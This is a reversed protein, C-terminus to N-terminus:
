SLSYCLGPSHGLSDDTDLVDGFYATEIAGELRVFLLVWRLGRSVVVM